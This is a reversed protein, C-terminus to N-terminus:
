APVLNAITEGKETLHIHHSRRDSPHPQREVLGLGELTDVLCTVGAPSLRHRKTLATPPQPGFEALDGLIRLSRISRIGHTDALALIETVSM